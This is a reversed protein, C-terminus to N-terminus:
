VSMGIPHRLAEIVLGYKSFAEKHLTDQIPRLSRPFVGMAGKIELVGVPLAVEVPEPFLDLNSAPCRIDTDISVRAGTEPEVYRGRSYQVIAAPILFFPQIQTLGFAQTPLNRLTESGFPDGLLDDADVELAVRQKDRVTGYKRKVELFCSIKAGPERDKATLTYWRLRVKTKVYDSNRKEDYLDLGYSDYYLSHVRGREFNRDPVCFSDLWALVRAQDALAFVYKAEITQGLDQKNM